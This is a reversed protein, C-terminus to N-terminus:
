IPRRTSTPISCFSSGRSIRRRKRVAAGFRFDLALNHGEIWDLRHLGERLGEVRTGSVPDDEAGYILLRRAAGTRPVRGAARAFLAMGGLAAVFERRRM